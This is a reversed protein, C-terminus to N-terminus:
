INIYQIILAVLLFFKIVLTLINMILIYYKFIDLLAFYFIEKLIDRLFLSSAIILLKLILEIIIVIIFFIRANKNLSTNIKEFFLMTGILFFCEIPFVICTLISLLLYISTLVKMLVTLKTNNIACMKCKNSDNIIEDRNTNATNNEIVNSSTYLTTNQAIQAIVLNNNAEVSLSNLNDSIIPEVIIINSPITNRDNYYPEANYVNNILTNVAIAVPIGTM